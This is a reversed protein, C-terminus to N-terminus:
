GLNWGFPVCCHGVGTILTGDLHGAVMVLLLFSMRFTKKYYSLLLFSPLTTFRLYLICCFKFYYVNAFKVFITLLTLMTLLLCLLCLYVCIFM